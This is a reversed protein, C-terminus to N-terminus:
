SPINEHPLTQNNEIRRKHLLISMAHHIAIININTFAQKIRIEPIKFITRLHKISPIHTTARAGTTIVILPAVNWGHSQILNIFPQYKNTKLEIAAHFFRDNCFTFEIFQITLTPDPHSPPQSHYSLGRVCLINPKFNAPYRCRHLGSSCPLLWPPVTNDPPNNNFTSANMKVYCMNSFM